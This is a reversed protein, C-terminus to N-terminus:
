GRSRVGGRKELWACPQRGSEDRGHNDVLADLLQRSFEDARMWDMGNSSPQTMGVSGNLPEFSCRIRVTTSFREFELQLSKNQEIPGFSVCLEDVALRLDEIEDVDFSARTAVTAATFRALVVHDVTPPFSLEILEDQVLDPVVRLSRISV